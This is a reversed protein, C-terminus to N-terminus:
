YEFVNQRQQTFSAPLEITQTGINGTKEVMASLSAILEKNQASLPALAPGTLQANTKPPPEPLIFLSELELIAKYQAQSPDSAVSKALATFQITKINVLPVISDLSKFFTNMSLFPGQIELKLPLSYVGEVTSKQIGVTSTQSLQAGSTAVKGPNIELSGVAIGASAALQEMSSLLPIVPKVSPLVRQLLSTNTDLETRNLSTLFQVRNRLDEFKKEEIALQNAHETILRIQPVLFSLGLIIMVGWSAVAVTLYRHKRLYASISAFSLQDLASAKKKDAM